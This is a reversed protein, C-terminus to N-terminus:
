SGSHQTLDSSVSGIEPENKAIRLMIQAKQPAVFQILSLTL